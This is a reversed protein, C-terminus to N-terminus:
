KGLARDVATWAERNLMRDHVWGENTLIVADNAALPEKASELWKRLDNFQPLKQLAEHHAWAPLSTVRYRYAVQSMRVGMMDAPETFRTISTLEARGICIGGRIPPSPDTAKEPRFVKKGEATLDYTFEGKRKAPVETLVGALALAHLGRNVNMLDWQVSQTPFQGRIICKPFAEDLYSQVAKSFNAENPKRPNSCGVQFAGLLVVLAVKDRGSM